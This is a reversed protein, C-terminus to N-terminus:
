LIIIDNVEVEVIHKREIGQRYFRSVLKGEVALQMGETYHQDLITVWKGWATLRHWYSKKKQKGESDLFHETTSMTFQAIKRGNELEVFKPASAIKGILNVHNM